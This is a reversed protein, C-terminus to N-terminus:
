GLLVVRDEEVDHQGLQIAEFRAPVQACASDVGGYQDDAGAVPDGVTYVPQVTTGVVVQDLGEGKVFQERTQAGHGPAAARTGRRPSRTKWSRGTRSM